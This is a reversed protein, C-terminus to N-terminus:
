RHTANRDLAEDLASLLENVKIPKTLYRYFGAAIGREIDRPMANASLAMVPIHATNADAALIQMAETGSTGPLNIDMLIVSPLAARAIAVGSDADIATLLRIDPRRTMLDQVLMLNAPNDEIYLLSYQPQLVAPKTAAAGLGIPLKQLSTTVGGQMPNVKATHPTPADIQAIEIWFTSGTGLTSEVGLTAGMKEALQRAVVLGIGTGVETSNEQGLRNFPQFLNALNRPSIGIGSDTVSIRVMKTTGAEGARANPSADNAAPASRGTEVQVVVTGNPRNYKISNSLLNVIVQKLRTWDAFVYLNDALEPFSLKINKVAAQPEIMTQCDTLLKGLATPEVSLSIRGAEIQSLDLIENILDLLFWGAKLIQGISRVQAPSPAPTSSELLQAFGLIAGLPTRLEHSMNSLFDSKALNASEAVKTAAEFELNKNQLAIDLASREAEVQKRITNNRLMATFFREGNTVFESVAIEMPFASGDQRIGTVERGLGSMVGAHSAVYYQLSGNILDDGLEPILISFVEGVIDAQSYGFMTLAATNASEIVGGKAYFTVIGDAASALVAQVRATSDAVTSQLKYEVTVDRFVLVAGVINNQHDCIPACSDAIDYESGDRCILITHNALGTAVGRALTESVPIAAPTRTTKSVIRFIEAVPRGIGEAATWGTLRAATPNLVRVIGETDTAIVGDGISNLTVSLKAESTFLANNTQELAENARKEVQLARQTEAHSQEAFRHRVDRVILWVFVGSILVGLISLSVILTIFDRMVSKTDAQQTQLIRNQAAVFEGVHLRIQDMLAKGKASAVIGMAGATDGDRRQQVANTIQALRDAVLTELVVLLNANQTTLAQAVADSCTSKISALVRDYPELFKVDGTIVYGRGGTEADRLQSLCFEVHDISSNTKTSEETLRNIDRVAVFSATMGAILLVLAISGFGVIARNQALVARM